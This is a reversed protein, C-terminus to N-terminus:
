KLRLNVAKVLSTFQSASMDVPGANVYALGIVANRNRFVAAYASVASVASKLAASEDGVRPM